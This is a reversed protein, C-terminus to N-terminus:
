RVLISPEVEFHAKQTLAYDSTCVDSLVYVDSSSAKGNYQRGVRVSITVATPGHCRKLADQNWHFRLLM